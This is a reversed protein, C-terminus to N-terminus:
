NFQVFAIFDQKGPNTIGARFLECFEKETIYPSFFSTVNKFSPSEHM